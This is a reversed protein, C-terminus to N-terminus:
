AEFPLVDWGDAPRFARDMVFNVDRLTKEVRVGNDFIVRINKENEVDLSYKEGKKLGIFLPIRREDFGMLRLVVRDFAIPNESCLVCGCPKPSPSLPGNREGAIVMDGLSFFRRQVKDQLVGKKNSYYIIRNIDLVARWITDNGHWNGVGQYKTAFARRFLWFPTRLAKLALGITRNQKNEFYNEKDRINSETQFIIKPGNFEDGGEDTNGKVFHPIADKRYCIGIYNKLAATYGAKRHTKIKPLNIIVDAALAIDSIVYRHHAGKHYYENMRKADLFSYRLSNKPHELGVFYSDKGLDVETGKTETTIIREKSFTKVVDGRLDKIEIQIGREECSRKLVDLHAVKVFQDFNCDPMASDAVYIKGSGNLALSVYDIMARTISTNTFLCDLGGSSNENYHMVWNPKILVTDGPKIIDGLPNWAPTEFNEQDLGYLHLTSRVMDYVENREQAIDEWCYEPYKVSPAYGYKESPYQFCDRHEFAVTAKM